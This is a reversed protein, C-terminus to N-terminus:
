TADRRDRPKPIQALALKQIQECLTQAQLAHEGTCALTAGHSLADHINAVANRMLHSGQPALWEGQNLFNYSRLETSPVVKRFRWRAGDHQLPRRVLCTEVGEFVGLFLNGSGINRELCCEPYFFLSCHSM